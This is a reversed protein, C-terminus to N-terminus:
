KFWWEKPPEVLVGQLDLPYSGFGDLTQFSFDADEGKTILLDNNPSTTATAQRWSNRREQSTSRWVAKNMLIDYAAQEMRYIFPRVHSELIFGADTDAHTALDRVNLWSKVEDRTYGLDAQTLFQSLKKELQRYSLRFAREFLRIFEHYKGTAHQHSLAESLLAVGDSRDKLNQLVTGDLIIKHRAITTGHSELFIGNTAALWNIETDDEPILAIYPHPSAIVRSCHNAVSILNVANEIAGESDNRINNAFIIKNNEDLEPLSDMKVQCYVIVRFSNSEKQVLKITKLKFPGFQMAWSRNSDQVPPTFYVIVARVFQM